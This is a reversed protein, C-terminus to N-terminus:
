VPSNIKYIKFFLYYVYFSFALISLKECITSAIKKPAVNRVNATEKAASFVFHITIEDVIKPNYKKPLIYM